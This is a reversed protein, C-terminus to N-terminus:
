EGKREYRRNWAEIAGSKTDDVPGAAGCTTSACEIRHRWKSLPVDTYIHEGESGCFPCMQYGLKTNINHIYPM